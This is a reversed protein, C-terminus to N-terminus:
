LDGPLDLHYAHSGVEELVAFPGAWKNKFKKTPRKTKINKMSLYVLDGAKWNPAELQKRDAFEVYEQNAQFIQSKLYEHLKQLESTYSNVEASQVGPDRLNISLKPHYGKNAFFPSVGTAHHPSNNYTFEALLLLDYWDDQDYECYIRIYAELSQNVRETQGDAQPHYATSLHQKIGMQNCVADM